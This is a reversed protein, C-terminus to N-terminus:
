TKLPTILLLWPSRWNSNWRWRIEGIPSTLLRVCKKILFTLHSQFLCSNKNFNTWAQCLSKIRWSGPNTEKIFMTSIGTTSETISCKILDHTPNLIWTKLQTILRLWSSRWDSNWLWTIEGGIPSTAFREIPFTLHSRFLCRNKYLLNGHRAYHNWGVPVLLM